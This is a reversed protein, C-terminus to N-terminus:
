LLRELIQRAGRAAQSRHSIRNKEEPTLEAVTKDWEPLYFVPDYGFGEEGRPAFTIVGRCEGESFEVEGEPIAVAIVCRFRAQRKAEPVDVLKALLYNIREGDSVGNGAYRASRVGPEGGLADVELGSDDALTILNSLAAYTAAKMRANEELSMGEEEVMTDIGVETLTVLECSLGRLLHQYERIKGENGTAILLKRM